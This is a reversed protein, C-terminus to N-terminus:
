FRNAKREIKEGNGNEKSAYAITGSNRENTVHAQSKTIIKLPSHVSM